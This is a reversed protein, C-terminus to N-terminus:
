GLFFNLAFVVLGAVGSIIALRRHKPSAWALFLGSAFLTTLGVGWLVSIAKGLTSGKAKHLQVLRRYSTTTKVDLQAILPDNTPKLIVDRQVGTWDLEFSTGARRVSAGGSPSPVGVQDRLTREALVVLPALDATLPEQLPIEFSQTKYSGKVSLTYLTGTIVFMLGVPLFFAALMVHLNIVKARPIKLPIV